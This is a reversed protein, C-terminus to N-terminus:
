SCMKRIQIFYTCLWQFDKFRQTHTTGVGGQPSDWSPPRHKTWQAYKELNRIMYGRVREKRAGEETAQADIM